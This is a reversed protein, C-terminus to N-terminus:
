LGSPESATGAASQGPAAAVALRRELLEFLDGLAEAERTGGCRLLMRDADALAQCAGFVEAKSLLVAPPFALPVPRGPSRDPPRVTPTTVDLVTM